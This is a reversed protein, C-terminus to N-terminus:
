KFAYQSFKKVEDDMINTAWSSDASWEAVAVEYGRRSGRQAALKDIHGIIANRRQRSLPRGWSTQYSKAVPETLRARLVYRIIERRENQRLGRTKAVWYGYFTLPSVDECYWNQGLSLPNESKYARHARAVPDPMGKSVLSDFEKKADAKNPARERRQAERHQRDREAHDVQEKVQRRREAAHEKM